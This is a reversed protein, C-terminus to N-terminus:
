FQVKRIGLKCLFFLYIFHINTKLYRKWLKKPDQILRYFWELGSNQMWLPAHNINGAFFDFAAGIAMMPAPIKGIHQAVWKEQRPCGRGILVINPETENIKKIDELDEEPTADRFRDAHIGCIIVNPFNKHIYLSMRELTPKTSGYLYVRMNYRDAKALVNKTLIPGAVRDKLHVKYFSNLAWKVPQGDPVILEIKDLYERFTKNKVSEILGHVALASVGYSEKAIAKEVIYDSAAEYNTISYNVSFLKRKIIMNMLFIRKNIKYFGVL